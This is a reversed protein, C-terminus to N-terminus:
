KKTETPPAATRAQEAELQGRAANLLVDRAEPSLQSLLRVVSPPASAEAGTMFEDLTKDFFQAVRIADEVNTSRAANQRLKKLQEYSVGSEMAVRRLPIGTKDLHRILSERFTDMRRHYARAGISPLSRYERSLHPFLEENFACSM